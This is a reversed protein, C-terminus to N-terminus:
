FGGSARLGGQPDAGAQVLVEATQVINDRTWGNTAIISHYYVQDHCPDGKAWTPTADERRLWVEQTSCSFDVFGDPYAMGCKVVKIKPDAFPAAMKSLYGPLMLDDDDFWCVLEGTVYQTGANRAYCVNADETHEYIKIRSDAPLDVAGGSENNIVTLEWNQYGQALISDITHSLTHQRKYTPLIISVKPQYNQLTAYSKIDLRMMWDYKCFPILDRMPQDDHFQLIEYYHTMWPHLRKNFTNADLPNTSNVLCYSFGTRGKPNNSWWDPLIDEPLIDEPM